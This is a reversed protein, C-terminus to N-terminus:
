FMDPVHESEEPTNKHVSTAHPFPYVMTYVMSTPSNKQWGKPSFVNEFFRVWFSFRQHGSFRLRETSVTCLLSQWAFRFLCLWTNGIRPTITHRAQTRFIEDADWTGRLRLHKRSAPFQKRILKPLPREARLNPPISESVHARHARHAGHDWHAGNDGTPGMPGIRGMPGILGNGMYIYINPGYSDPILESVLKRFM